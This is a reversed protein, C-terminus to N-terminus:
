RETPTASPEPGLPAPTPALSSARARIAAAISMATVQPDYTKRPFETYGDAIKACADREERVAAAIALQVFGAIEWSYRAMAQEDHGSCDDIGDGVHLDYDRLLQLVGDPTFAPEDAM